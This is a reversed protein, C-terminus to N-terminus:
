RMAIYCNVIVYNADVYASCIFLTNYYSYYINENMIPKKLLTCMHLINLCKIYTIVYCIHYTSSM